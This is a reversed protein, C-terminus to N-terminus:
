SNDKYGKGKNATVKTAQVNVFAGKHKVQAHTSQLYSTLMRICLVKNTFRVHVCHVYIVLRRDLFCDLISESSEIFSLYVCVKSM